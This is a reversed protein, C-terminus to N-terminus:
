EIFTLFYAVVFITWFPAITLGIEAYIAIIFAVIAKVLATYLLMDQKKYIIIYLIFIIIIVFNYYWFKDFVLEKFQLFKHKSYVTHHLATALFMIFAFIIEKNSKKVIISIVDNSNNEPTVNEINNNITTM